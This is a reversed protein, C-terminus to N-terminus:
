EAAKAKARAKMYASWLRRLKLVAQGFLAGGVSERYEAYAIASEAVKVALDLRKQAERFRQVAEQCRGHAAAYENIAERLNV